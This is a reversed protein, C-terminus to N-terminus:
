HRAIIDLEQELIPGNAAPHIPNSSFLNISRAPDTLLHPQVLTLVAEGSSCGEVAFVDPGKGDM